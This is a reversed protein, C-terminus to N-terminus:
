KPAAGTEALLAAIHGAPVGLNSGGFEPIIATNVAVVAGDLTLVPGGSGGHTTEADYVVTAATVRGVIGRSALPAILGAGALRAAVEWFGTEGAAQLEQVFAAGSQALLSMLGTPYGMVIVEEGPAPAAAALRLGPAAAADGDIALVALDVQTSVALTRLAVPAARNPFYGLFRTMVPELDTTGLRAAPGRGWPQAVHRNTIMVDRDALVFGTGNFQVEAVRGTGTLSLYPQGGPLHVPVGDPGLVHRLLAGTERDRLSYAGQLFAVSGAAQSVVRRAAGSRAELAQLRDANSRLRLTLDEQLAALDGPRIAEQRTQALAAAVADVQLAGSEIRARILADTRGQQYLMWALLGLATLVAARFLISTERLLRRLMERAAYGCRFMLPKRSSRLYSAADGVIEGATVRPRRTDDYLRFRSIPGTEGFEIVDGYRLVEAQIQQGNLWVPWRGTAQLEYSGGIRRLRAITGATPAADSGAALSLRRDPRLGLDIVAETLWSMHGRAPGTLHELAAATRHAPQTDM